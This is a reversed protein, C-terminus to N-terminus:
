SETPPDHEVTQSQGTEDDPASLVPTVRGTPDGDDPRIAPVVGTDDDHPRNQGRAPPPPAAVPVPGGAAVLVPQSVALPAADHAAEAGQLMPYYPVFNRGELTGNFVYGLLNINALTIREPLGEHNRVPDLFPIVLILDGVASALDTGYSTGIPPLDILVIDYNAKIDNLALRLSQQSWRTLAFDPDRGSTLVSLEPVADAGVVTDVLPRGGVVESFGPRPATIPQFQDTETL